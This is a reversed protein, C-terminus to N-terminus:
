LIIIIVWISITTIIALITMGILFHINKISFSVKNELSLEERKAEKAGVRQRRGGQLVKFYFHKVNTLIPWFQDSTTLLSYLSQECDLVKNLRERTRIGTLRLLRLESEKEAVRRNVDNVVQAGREHQNTARSSWWCGFFLSLYCLSAEREHQQLWLQYYASSDSGVTAYEKWAMTIKIM